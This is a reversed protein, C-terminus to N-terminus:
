LNPIGVGQPEEATVVLAAVQCIVEGKLELALVLVGFLDVFSTHVGEASEGQGRDHVLLEQAYMAPQTRLQM